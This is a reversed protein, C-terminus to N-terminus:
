RRRKDRHERIDERLTAVVKKWRGVVPLFEYELLDSLLIWDEHETVESMETLLESIDNSAEVFETHDTLSFEDRLVGIMQVFDRIVDLLDQYLELGDADDAQRFLEAVESAGNNMLEVVKYLERTISVAMEDVAMTNIELTEVGDIDIDESQHPYIESFPEKNVYVDTVVRDALLGKEMITNFVQELNQFNKVSLDSQHGDIVIM